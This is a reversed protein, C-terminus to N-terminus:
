CGVWWFDLMGVWGGFILFFVWLNLDVWFVFVFWIGWVAANALLGVMGFWLFGGLLYIVGIGCWTLIWLCDVFGGVAIGLCVLWFRLGWWVSLGICVEAVSFGSLASLAGSFRM